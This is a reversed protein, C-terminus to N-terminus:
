GKGVVNKIDSVLELGEKNRVQNMLAEVKENLGDADASVIRMIGAFSSNYDAIDKVTDQVLETIYEFEDSPIRSIIEDMLGSTELIDYTLAANLDDEFDIGAYYHAIALAFFTEVRIPSFRGTNEDLTQSVIYEILATKEVIPLYSRVTLKEGGEFEIVSDKTNPELKLDKFNM